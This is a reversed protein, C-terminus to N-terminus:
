FGLKVRLIRELSMQLRERSIEGSKVAELVAEYAAPFDAPMLIIDVGAQIAMVAAEGAEYNKAIAGMNMADTIVIGQYGMEERLLDTVMVSSLSGPCSDGLINPASIHGMMIFSIGRDIQEQFPILEEQRLEDLSKDTYAFGEHSDEKTDGHGPFHKACPWIGKEVLGASFSAAMDKVLSAEAGFSRKKMLRNEPNTWVDAVPAFDLNFGLDALYSGITQGAEYAVATSQTAGIDAMNGVDTIGFVPNSAVRAVTGGEEDVGLFLPVGATEMSLQQYAELMARTQEPETLNKKMFIIGGVPYEAYSSKVEDTVSTVTGGPTLAEPTLFFLQAVQQELSWGELITAIRVEMPDAIPVDVPDTEEKKESSVESSVPSDEETVVVSVETESNTRVEEESVAETGGHNTNRGMPFLVGGALTILLILIVTAVLKKKM